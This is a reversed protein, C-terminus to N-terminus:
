RSGARAPRSPPAPTSGEILAGDVPLAAAWALWDDQASKHLVFEHGEPPPPQTADPTAFAVGGALLEDVGGTRITAGRFLSFNVDIGSANWFQTGPRVLGAYARGIGIRVVVGTADPALDVGLVEGVLIGRFTVPRGPELSGRQASRLHYIVKDDDGFESPPKELGVFARRPSGGGPAVAIVPGTFITEPARVGSLSIQPRVIWFRSEARALPEAGRDLDVLLEVGSQDPLLVIEKVVGMPLGKYMVKTQGPVLGTADIFRISINPGRNKLEKHVLYGGILISILPVIWILPFRSRASPPSATM